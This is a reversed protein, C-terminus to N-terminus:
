MFKGYFVNKSSEFIQQYPFFNAFPERLFEEIGVFDRERETGSTATSFECGRAPSSMLHWRRGLSKKRFLPTGASTQIMPLDTLRSQKNHFSIKNQSAM